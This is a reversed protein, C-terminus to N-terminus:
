TYITKAKTALQAPGAFLHCFLQIQYNSFLNCIRVCVLCPCKCLDEFWLFGILKKVNILTTSLWLYIEIISAYFTCIHWFLKNLINVCINEACLHFAAFLKDTCKESKFEINIVFSYKPHASKFNGYISCLMGIAIPCLPSSIYTYIYIVAFQQCSHLCIGHASCVRPFLTSITVSTPCQCANILLRNM